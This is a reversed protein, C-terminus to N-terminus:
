NKVFFVNRLDTKGWFVQLTESVVRTQLGHHALAVILGSPSGSQFWLLNQVCKLTTSQFCKLLELLELLQFTTRVENTWFSAASGVRQYLTPSLRVKTLHVTSNRVKTINTVQTVTTHDPEYPVSIAWSSNRLAVQDWFTNEHFLCLVSRKCVSLEHLSRSVPCLRM